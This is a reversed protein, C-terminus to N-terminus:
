VGLNFSRFNLTQVDIPHAWNVEKIYVSIM